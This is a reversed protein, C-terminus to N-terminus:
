LPLHLVQDRLDEPTAAEAILVLDEIARGVAMTQPVKVVGAHHAGRRVRDDAHGLMTNVDHTLLVRGHDAAWQLVLRDDTAALGVERVSQVDLDKLRRLLGSVVTADFDEDTLFALM